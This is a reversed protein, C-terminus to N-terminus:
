ASQQRYAVAVVGLEAELGRLVELQSADLSAATLPLRAPLDTRPEGAAYALVFDAGLSREAEEVLSLGHADLTAWTWIADTMTDDEV